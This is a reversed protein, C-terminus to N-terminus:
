ENENRELEKVIEDQEKARAAFSYEEQLKPWIALVKEKQEEAHEELWKIKEFFDEEDHYYVLSDGFLKEFEESYESLVPRGCSLAELIRNNIFGEERM